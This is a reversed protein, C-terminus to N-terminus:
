KFSAGYGESLTEATEGRRSFRDTKKPLVLVLLFVYVAMAAYNLHWVRGDDDAFILLKEKSKELSLWPAM